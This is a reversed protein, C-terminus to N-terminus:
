LSDVPYAGITDLSITAPMLRFGRRRLAAVAAPRSEPLLAPARGRQRSSLERFIDVLLDWADSKHVAACWWYPSVFSHSGLEVIRAPVWMKSQESM